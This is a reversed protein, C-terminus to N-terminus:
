TDIYQRAIDGKESIQQKQHTISGNVATKYMLIQQKKVQSKRENKIQWYNWKRLFRNNEDVIMMRHKGSRWNITDNYPTQCFSPCM